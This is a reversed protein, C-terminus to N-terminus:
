RSRREKNGASLAPVLPELTRISERVRNRRNAMVGAFFARDSSSLKTTSSLAKDLELYDRNQLLQDLDIARSQGAEQSQASFAWMADVTCVVAGGILWKWGPSNKGM